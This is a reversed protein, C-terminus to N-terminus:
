WPPGACVGYGGVCETYMTQYCDYTYNGTGGAVSDLVDESLEEEATNPKPPIGITLENSTNEVIKIKVGGMSVGFAEEIAENPNAFLKMRFSEDKWCKEIVAKEFDDKSSFKKNEM